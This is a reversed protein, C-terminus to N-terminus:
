SKNPAGTATDAICSVLDCSQRRVDDDSAAQAVYRLPAHNKRVQGHVFIQLHAGVELFVFLPDCGLLLIHEFDERAKM